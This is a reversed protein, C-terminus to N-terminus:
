DSSMRYHDISVIKTKLFQMFLRMRFLKWDIEIRLVNKAYYLPAKREVFLQNFDDCVTLCVSLYLNSIPPLVSSSLPLRLFLNNDFLFTPSPFYFPSSMFM